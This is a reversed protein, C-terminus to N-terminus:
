WIMRLQTHSATRGYAGAVRDLARDRDRHGYLRRVLERGDTHRLAIVVDESLLELVNVM